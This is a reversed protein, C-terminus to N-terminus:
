TLDAFGATKMEAFLTHASSMTVDESAELGPISVEMNHRISRGLVSVYAAWPKSTPAPWSLRSMAARRSNTVLETASKAAAGRHACLLRLLSLSLLLSWPVPEQQPEMGALAAGLEAAAVKAMDSIDFYPIHGYLLARTVLLTGHGTTSATNVLMWRPFGGTRCGLAAAGVLFEGVQPEDADIESCCQEGAAPTTYHHLMIWDKAVYQLDYQAAVDGRRAAAVTAIVQARAEPVSTVRVARVARILQQLQAGAAADRPAAAATARLSNAVDAGHPHTVHGRKVMANATHYAAKASSRDQLTANLGDYIAARLAGLKAMCLSRNTLLVADRPQLHLALTYDHAAAEFRGSRFAAGARTRLGRATAMSQIQSRLARAFRMLAFRRGALAGSHDANEDEHMSPAEERWEHPVQQKSDALLDISQWLNAAEGRRVVFCLWPSLPEVTLADFLSSEAAALTEDARLAGTEERRGSSWMPTHHQAEKPSAALDALLRAAQGLLHSQLGPGIIGGHAMELVVPERWLAFMVLETSPGPESPLAASTFFSLQSPLPGAKFYTPWIDGAAVEALATEATCALRLCTLDDLIPGLDFPAEIGPAGRAALHDTLSQPLEVSSVCHGPSVRYRGEELAAPGFGRYAARFALLSRATLHRCLTDCGIFDLVDFLTTVQREAMPEAM